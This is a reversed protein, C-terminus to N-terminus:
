ESRGYTREHQNSIYKLWKENDRTIVRDNSDPNLLDGRCSWLCALEFGRRLKLRVIKSMDTSHEHIHDNFEIISFVLSDVLLTQKKYIKIDEGLDTYGVPILWLYERKKLKVIEFELCRRIGILHEEYPFGSIVGIALNVIPFGFTHKWKKSSDSGREYEEYTRVLDITPNEFGIM